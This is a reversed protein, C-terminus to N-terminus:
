VSKKYLDKLSFSIEKVTFSRGNLYALEGAPSTFRFTLRWACLAQFRYPLGRNQKATGYKTDGVLPHGLFALHARIQHTRGTHLRVELLSFNRDQELVTYETLITRAEPSPRSSVMVQNHASDKKLYARCLQHAPSPVGFVLCRYTKELERDKIKQNLIRLAEADKACIVIGSTNRDIRNCLAPAFSNERAPDYEGKKWLYKTIRNILTDVTGEDDEHVVLGVPKDALLIHEDEYIINLEDRASCFALPQDEQVFFEDNLYLEVLDGPQLRTSIEARKGNVKIRKTRIGKYLMSQPLLPVAKTLFKDLRQGSDNQNITFSRM